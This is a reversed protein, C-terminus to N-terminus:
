ILPLELRGLRGVCLFRLIVIVNRDVIVTAPANARATSVAFCASAAWDLGRSAAGPLGLPKARGLRAEALDRM